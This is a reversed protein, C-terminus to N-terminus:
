AEVCESVSEKEEATAAAAPWNEQCLTSKALDKLAKEPTKYVEPNTQLQIHHRHMSPCKSQCTKNISLWSKNCGFKGITKM